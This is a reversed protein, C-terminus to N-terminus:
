RYVDRELQEREYQDQKQRLKEMLREKEQQRELRRQEQPDDLRDRPAERDFDRLPPSSSPKNGKGFLWDLTAGFLDKATDIYPDWISESPRAFPFEARGDVLRAALAQQFFEGVLLM